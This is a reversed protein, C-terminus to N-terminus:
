AQSEHQQLVGEIEALKQQLLTQLETLQESNAQSLLEPDLKRLNGTATTIQRVKKGAPTEPQQYDARVQAVLKRTQAASLKEAIVQKTAKVRVSKAKQASVGLNKPNLTQLAMAHVGKLGSERIATKLDEALSLMPFINADVSAPNLQLDLLLSLVAQETDELDLNALGEQQAQPSHHLLAVVENMRKQKNLRRVVTALIRPLDASKLGTTEALERVIAEAKDLPTLDERHLSTLLAQRHLNQPESIVVAQLHEWNLNKASRWRREGDFLVYHEETSILIVPQLQGDTALSRSMSEISEPLFTQRPQDPNPQIQDIPVTLIASQAQLQQRLQALETELETAGQSRLQEIEAKLQQIEVEASSLKQSQKASSFYSALDPGKRPSM